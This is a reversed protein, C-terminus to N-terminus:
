DHPTLYTVRSEIKGATSLQAYEEPTVFRFPAYVAGIDTFLVIRYEGPEISETINSMYFSQKNVYQLEPKPPYYELRGWGISGFYPLYSSVQVWEGDVLRELLTDKFSEFGVGPNRNKVYGVVKEADTPYVDYEAYAVLDHTKKLERVQEESCILNPYAYYQRVTCATLLITLLFLMM